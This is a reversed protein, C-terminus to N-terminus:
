LQFGYVNRLKKTTKITARQHIVNTDIRDTQIYTNKINEKTFYLTGNKYIFDIEKYTTIKISYVYLVIQVDRETTFGANSIQLLMNVGLLFAVFM